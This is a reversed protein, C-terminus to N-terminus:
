GEVMVTGYGNNNLYASVAGYLMTRLFGHEPTPAASIACEFLFHDADADVALLSLPIHAQLLYGDETDDTTITIEPAPRTSGAVAVLARAPAAATKALLFIQGVRNSKPMSGFVEICSGQWLREAQVRVRDFVQASFVLNEAM